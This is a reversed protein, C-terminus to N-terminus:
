VWGNTFPAKDGKPESEACGVMYAVYETIYVRGCMSRVGHLPSTQM